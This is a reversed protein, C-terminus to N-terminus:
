IYIFGATQIKLSPGMLTEALSPSSLYGGCRTCTWLPGKLTTNKRRKLRKKNIKSAVRQQSKLNTQNTGGTMTLKIGTTPAFNPCHSIAFWTHLTLPRSIVCFLSPIKGWFSMGSISDNLLGYSKKVYPKTKFCCFVQLCTMMEMPAWHSLDAPQPGGWFATNQHFPNKVFAM